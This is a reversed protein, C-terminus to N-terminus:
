ISQIQFEGRTAAPEEFEPSGFPILALEGRQDDARNWPAYIPAYIPAYVPAYVFDIQNQNGIGPKGWLSHNDRM